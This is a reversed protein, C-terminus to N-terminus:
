IKGILKICDKKYAFVFKLRIGNLDSTLYAQALCPYEIPEYDASCCKMDINYNSIKQAKYKEWTKISRIVEM